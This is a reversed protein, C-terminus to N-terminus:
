RPGVVVIGADFRVHAGHTNALVVLADYPDVGRLEASVLQPLESEVVVNFSGAEALHRAANDLRVARLHVDRPGVRRPRSGLDIAHSPPPDHIPAQPVITRGADDYLMRYRGGPGQFTAGNVVMPDSEDEWGGSTAYDPAPFRSPEDRACGTAVVAVLVATICRM